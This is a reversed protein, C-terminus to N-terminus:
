QHPTLCQRKLDRLKQGMTIYLTIAISPKVFFLSLTLKTYNLILKLRQDVITTYISFPQNVFLFTVQLFSNLQVAQPCLVCKGQWFDNGSVSCPEPVFGMQLHRHEYPTLSSNTSVLTLLKVLLFPSNRQSYM